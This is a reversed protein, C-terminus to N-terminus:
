ALEEPRAFRYGYGRVTQIYRPNAPDDEIKM